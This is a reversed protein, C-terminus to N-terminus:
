LYDNTFVNLDVPAKLTGQELLFDQSAKVAEPPQYGNKGDAEPPLKELAFIEDMLALAFKNDASEDPFIKGCLDIIEQAHGDHGWDTAKQLASVYGKLADENKDVWGSEAVNVSDIGEPYDEDTLARLKLGRQRMIEVDVYSDSYADIDGRDIAVAAPGGGGIDVLEYDGEKLGGGKGLLSEAYLSSGSNPASIGVKKGKLDSVAKIDSDEPVVLSYVEGQNLAYFSKLDSGKEVAQMFPGPSAVGIQARGSAVAALVGGSGELPEVKVDLGEDKFYGQDISAYIPYMSSCGPFPTAVTIATTKGGSKSSTGKDDDDGCGAAVLAAVAGLAAVMSRKKMGLM